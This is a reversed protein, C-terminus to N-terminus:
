RASSIEPSNQRIKSLEDWKRDQGSAVLEKAQKELSGLINIEAELESVTAAATADDV